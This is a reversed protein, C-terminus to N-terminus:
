ALTRGLLYCTLVAQCAEDIEHCRPISSAAAMISYELQGTAPASYGGNAEAVEAARAYAEAWQVVARPSTRM